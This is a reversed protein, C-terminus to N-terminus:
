EPQAQPSPAEAGFAYGAAIICLIILIAAGILAKTNQTM